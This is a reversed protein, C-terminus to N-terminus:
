NATKNASAECDTKPARTGKSAAQKGDRNAKRAERQKQKVSSSKKSMAPPQSSEHSQLSTLVSETEM